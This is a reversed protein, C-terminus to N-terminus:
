NSNPCAIIRRWPVFIILFIIILLVRNRNRPKKIAKLGKKCWEKNIVKMAECMNYEDTMQSIVVHSVFKSLFNTVIYLIYICIQYLSLFKHCILLFEWIQMDCCTTIITRIVTLICWALNTFKKQEVYSKYM